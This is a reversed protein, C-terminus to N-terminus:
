TFSFIRHNATHKPMSSTTRQILRLPMPSTGFHAVEQASPGGGTKTEVKKLNAGKLQSETPAEAM